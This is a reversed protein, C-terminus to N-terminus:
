CIVERLNKNQIIDFDIMANMLAIASFHKLDGVSIDEERIRNEDILRARTTGYLLPTKPTLWEKKYKFALNAISTDTILANKVIIIDDCEEKQLFLANIADRNFYKKSYELRDNDVLKLRKISRKAYPYYNVEFVARSYVVRCRYLGTKPPKLLEELIINSNGISSDLRKQHYNLHFLEGDQARITELYKTIM